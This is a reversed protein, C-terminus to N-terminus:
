QRLDQLEKLPGLFKEYHHWRGVSSRYIKQRVQWDSATSVRRETKYFELCREAWDLGIFEIIRRSWKDQDGILAEYPVDLLINSPLTTRWHAMLRHYERYYHALDTLDNAFTLVNSFNQFYISLCLDMPDRQMHIIRANPFVSHILGCYLFNSPMKDVVRLADASSDSLLRLYDNALKRLVPERPAEDHDHKGSMEKWFLLEGAGFVERHSAIIQETLSTGSRPMGVIFVPRTSASAGVHVQSMRGLDYSRILADVLLSQSHRDYPKAIARKLENARRYNLFARDFDQVDDCFKGMAFRLISERDPTLGKEVLAEAAILWATDDPTMRRLSVIASLASPLKPNIALARRFIAEAEAFRGWHRAVQGLETLVAPNDPNIELTRLLCAEAEDFRGLFTLTGALNHLADAFNPKIELARRLASLSEALQGRDGLTKGLNSHAEAFDPNIKIARRFNAEAEELRGQQFYVYGLNNYPKAYHSSFKAAKKYCGIAREAEGQALFEDGRLCLLETQKGVQKARSDM